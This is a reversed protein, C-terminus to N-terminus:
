VREIDILSYFDLMGYDKTVLIYEDDDSVSPSEVHDRVRFIEVNSDQLNDTCFSLILGPENGYTAYIKAREKHPTTSFGSTPYGRQGYQHLLVTNAVGNGAQAGLGCEAHPDGCCVETEFKKGIAKPILHGNAAKFMKISIGRYLIKPISMKNTMAFWNNFLKNM